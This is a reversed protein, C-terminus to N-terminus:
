EDVIEGQDNFNLPYWYEMNDFKESHVKMMYENCEVSYDDQLFYQEQYEPFLLSSSIIISKVPEFM